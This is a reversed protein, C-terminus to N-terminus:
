DQGLLAAVAFQETPAFTPAVTTDLGASAVTEYGGQPRPDRHILLRRGPLDLV